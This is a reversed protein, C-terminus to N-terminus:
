YDKAVALPINVFDERLKMLGKPRRKYDVGIGSIRRISKGRFYVNYWKM